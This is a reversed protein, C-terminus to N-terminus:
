LFVGILSRMSCGRILLEVRVIVIYLDTALVTGIAHSDFLMKKYAVSTLRYGTSIRANVYFGRYGPPIYKSKRDSHQCNSDRAHM